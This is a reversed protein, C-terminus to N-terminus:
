LTKPLRITFTTGEGSRSVFSVDGNMLEVYRKVITLGLGTGQINGTNNARFFKNFLFKQEEEPIGIGNDKVAIDVNGAAVRASVEIHAEEPSYKISNSLLNV